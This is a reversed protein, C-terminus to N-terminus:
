SRKRARKRPRAEATETGAAGILQAPRWASGNEGRVGHLFIDSM